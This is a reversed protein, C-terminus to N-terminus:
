RYLPNIWIANESSKVNQLLAVSSHKELLASVSNAKMFDDMTLENAFAISSTILILVIFVIFGQRLKM